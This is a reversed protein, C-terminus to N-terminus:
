NRFLASDPDPDPITLPGTGSLASYAADTNEKRAKIRNIVLEVEEEEEEEEMQSIDDEEM